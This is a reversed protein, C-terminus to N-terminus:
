GTWDYADWDVGDLLTDALGGPQPQEGEVSVEGGGFWFVSRNRISCTRAGFRGCCGGRRTRCFSAVNLEPLNRLLSNM